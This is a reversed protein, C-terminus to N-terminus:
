QVQDVAFPHGVSVVVISTLLELGDSLVKSYTSDVYVSCCM